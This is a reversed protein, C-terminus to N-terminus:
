RTSKRDLKELLDRMGPMQRGSNFRAGRQLMDRMVQRLDRGDLVKDTLHQMLDDTTYPEVKQTGDWRSYHYFLAM